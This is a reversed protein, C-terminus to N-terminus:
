DSKSVRAVEEYTSAGELVRRLGSEYMTEFGERRAQELVQHHSPSSTILREMEPSIVMLEFIGVRGRYGTNSCEACGVAEYTEKSQLVLAALEKNEKLEEALKTKLEQWAGYPRRCRACLRRILRQAIVANLAAALIAPKANLDLFRPIAGAADNTHLTSLVFHGTLAANLATGATEEDRIEGVLVIDPDHRLVSRLGEAFTYGREPEIQSQSIGELHYEIPNELTIIKVGPNRLYKLFAYLTTTKGSGTPGTNLVMGNPKDLETKIIEWLADPLGLDKVELAVTSPNLVRLVVYEGYAGPLVSTRVEAEFTPTVITFRGDHPVDTVNLQIGSLLKIRSLLLRYSTGSLPAINALVGDLRYRVLVTNEQPEIHIDSAELTLAAVLLIELLDSTEGEKPSAVRKKLAELTAFSARLEDFRSVVVRDVESPRVEAVPAHRYERLIERLSSLSILVTEPVYSQARLSDLSRQTEANGPDTIGVRLNKQVRSLVVINAREAEAHPVLGLAGRDVRFAHPRFYPIKYGRAAREIEAEEGERRIARLKEDRELTLEKEDM